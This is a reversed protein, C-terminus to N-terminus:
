LADAMVPKDLSQVGLGASENFAAEISTREEKIGLPAQQPMPMGLSAVNAINEFDQQTLM